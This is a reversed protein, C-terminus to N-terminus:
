RIVFPIGRESQTMQPCEPWCDMMDAGVEFAPM